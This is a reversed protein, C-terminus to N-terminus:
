VFLVSFHELNLHELIYINVYMCPTIIIVISDDEKCEIHVNVYVCYLIHMFATHLLYSMQVHWSIVEADWVTYTM